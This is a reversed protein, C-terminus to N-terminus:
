RLLPNNSFLAAGGKERKFKGAQGESGVMLQVFVLDEASAM